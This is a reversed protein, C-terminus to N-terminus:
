DYKKITTEVFGGDEKPMFTSTITYGSYQEFIRSVKGNVKDVIRKSPEENQKVLLEEIANLSTKFAQKVEEQTLGAKPKAVQSALLHLGDIIAKFNKNNASNNESVQIDKRELYELLEDGNDKNTELLDRVDKVLNQLNLAFDKQAEAKKLNVSRAKTKLENLNTM